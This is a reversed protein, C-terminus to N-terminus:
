PTARLSTALSLFAAEVGQGTKASSRLIRWGTRSLEELHAPQVEWAPELDAKNILLLFPVTGIKERIRQQLTVARELSSQRTGDAVLIYGAAGRMYELDAGIFEDEGALDWIVLKVEGHSTAVIKKDIKVGLTTHYKESFISRVFRAVLSTKGVAYAGMLCIKKRIM